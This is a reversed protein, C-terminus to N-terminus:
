FYPMERSLKQKPLSNSEASIIFDSDDYSLMEAEKKFKNFRKHFSRSKFTEFSRRNAENDDFDSSVFAWPKHPASRDLYRTKLHILKDEDKLKIKYGKMEGTREMYSTQSNFFFVPKKAQRELPHM